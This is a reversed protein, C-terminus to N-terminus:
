YGYEKYSKDVDCIVPNHKFIREHKPPLEMYDGYQSTLYKDYNKFIPMKTNEFKIEIIDEFLNGEHFLKLGSFVSGEILYLHSEEKYKSIKNELICMLRYYLNRPIILLVLYSVIYNLIGEKKTSVGRALLLFLSGYIFQLKKKLKSKPVTDFPFIDVFIGRNMKLNETGAEIFTTDNDRIKCFTQTFNKDTHYDQLFYKEPLQNKCIEKFKIYDKRSMAIDIDDDWPIFGKHRVAGLASGAYLSFKINNRYCIDKIVNLIELEKLQLKRLERLDM